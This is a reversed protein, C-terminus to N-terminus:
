HAKDGLWVERLSLHPWTHRVRQLLFCPFFLGSFISTCFIIPLHYLNLKKQTHKTPPFFYLSSFNPPHFVGRNLQSSFYSFSFYLTRKIGINLFQFNNNLFMQSFVHLHFLANFHTFYQKFVSFLQKFVNVLCGMTQVFKSKHGIIYFM